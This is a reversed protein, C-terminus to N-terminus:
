YIRVFSSCYLDDLGGGGLLQDLIWLFSRIVTDLGCLEGSEWWFWSSGIEPNESWARVTEKMGTKEYFKCMCVREAVWIRIERPSFCPAHLPKFFSFFRFISSSPGMAPKKCPSKVLYFLPTILVLSQPPNPIFAKRTGPFVAKRRQHRSLFQPSIFISTKKQPPSPIQLFLHIYSPITHPFSPKPTPPPPNETDSAIMNQLTLMPLCSPQFFPQLISNFKLPSPKRGLLSSIGRSTVIQLFSDAKRPTKPANPTAKKLAKKEGNEELSFGTKSFEHLPNQISIELYWTAFRCPPRGQYKKKKCFREFSKKNLSFLSPPLPVSTTYTHHHAKDGDCIM